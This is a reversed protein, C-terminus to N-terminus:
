IEETFRDVSIEFEAILGWAGREHVTTEPSALTLMYDRGGADRFFVPPAGWYCCIRRLPQLEVAKILYAEVVAADRGRVRYTARLPKGQREPEVVCEVLVAQAPKRGAEALLDGCAAAEAPASAQAAAPLPAFALVAGGCLGLFCRM